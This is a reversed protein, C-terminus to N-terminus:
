AMAPMPSQETPPPMMGTDTMNPDTMQPPMAMQPPQPPNAMALATTKAKRKDVLDGALHKQLSRIKKTIDDMQMSLAQGEEIGLMLEERDMMLQMLLESHIQLHRESMGPIPPEANGEMIHNNQYEAFVIDEEKDDDKFYSLIKSDMNKKDVYQKLLEMVLPDDALMPNSIISIIFTMTEQLDQAQQTKSALAETEIRVRVGLTDFFDVMKSTLPLDTVSEKSKVLKGNAEDFDYGKLKITKAASQSGQVLKTAEEFSNSSFQKVIALGQKLSQEFGVAWSNVFMRVGLLSSEQALQNNRVKSDTQVQSFMLPNVFTIKTSVTEIESRRLALEGRDEIVPMRALSANAPIKVFSGVKLAEGSDALEQLVGELEGTDDTYTTPLNNNYATIYDQLSTYLEDKEQINQLLAPFGIGYFSDKIALCKSVSFPLQKHNYPLPGNRVVKGNILVIYEDDVKNFYRIVEVWDPLGVKNNGREDSDELPNILYDKDSNEGKLDAKVIFPDPGKQYIDIAADLSITERWICDRADNTVGHLNTAGPDVFFDELDVIQIGFDNYDIVTEKKTLYKKPDGKIIELMQRKGNEALSDLEYEAAVDTVSRIMNVERTKIIHSNYVIGTGYTVTNRFWPEKVEKLLNTKTEWDEQWFEAVRAMSPDIGPPVDFSGKTNTDQFQATMAQIVSFAVPSTVAPLNRDLTNSGTHMNAIAEDKRWRDSWNKSKGGGDVAEGVCLYDPCNNERYLRMAEFREKVREATSLKKKNPQSRSREM